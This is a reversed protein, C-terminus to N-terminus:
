HRKLLSTNGEGFRDGVRANGLVRLDEIEGQRLLVHRTQLQILIRRHAPVRNTVALDLNAEFILVLWSISM